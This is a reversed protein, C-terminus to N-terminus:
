SRPRSVGRGCHDFGTGAVILTTWLVQKQKRSM